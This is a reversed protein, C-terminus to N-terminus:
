ELSNAQNRANESQRKAVQKQGKAAAVLRDLTGADGESITRYNGVRQIEIAGLSELSDVVRRIKWVPIDRKFRSGILGALQPLTLRSGTTM